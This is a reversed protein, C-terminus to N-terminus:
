DARRDTRVTQPAARLPPSERLFVVAQLVRRLISHGALAVVIGLLLYVGILSYLVFGLDIVM